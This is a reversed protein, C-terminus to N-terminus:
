ENGSLRIMSHKTISQGKCQQNHSINTILKNYSQAKYSM